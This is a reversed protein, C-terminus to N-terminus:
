FFLYSIFFLYVLVHVHEFCVELAVTTQFVFCNQLGVNMNRTITVRVHVHERWAFTFAFTFAPFCLHTQM